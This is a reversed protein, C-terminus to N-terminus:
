GEKRGLRKRCLALGALGTGMLLMTSPEPVTNYTPDGPQATAIFGHNGGTSGSYSGVISGTDNIGRAYTYVAGPVDLSSYSSGNYTYGHYYGTADVYTGVISGTDTISYAYTNTAGPVNLFSYSSGDYTFGRNGTGDWYTGM